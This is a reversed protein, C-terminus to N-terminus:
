PKTTFNFTESYSYGYTKNWEQGMKRFTDSAIDDISALPYYRQVYWAYATNAPLGLAQASLNPIKESTSTTFIYYSPNSSSTPYIRVLNVGSGEGQTWTFQTLTDINTSNNLPIALRASGNLTVTVGTSGATIDHKMIYSYMYFSGSTKYGYTYIAFTIDPISPVTYVFNDTSPSNENGLYIYANAFRAYLQRSSIPYDSPHVISGTIYAEAPNVADLATFNQGSYTAGNKITLNKTWYADYMIPLANANLTDRLVLLKGVLSDVGNYWYPYISYAGTTPNATGGYARSGGVFYVMTTKGSAVPVTGSITASYNTTPLTTMYLLKPDPRNLGRYVIATKSTSVIITIDYPTTVNAISFTGSATTTVTAKGPILVAAGSVPNGNYDKVFGNVTIPGLPEIVENKKCGFFIIGLLLISICMTLINKMFLKGM